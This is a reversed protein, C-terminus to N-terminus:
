QALSEAETERIASIKFGRHYNLEIIRGQDQLLQGYRNRINEELLAYAIESWRLSRENGNKEHSVFITYMAKEFDNMEGIQGESSVSKKLPEAF